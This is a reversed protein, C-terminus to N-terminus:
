KHVIGLCSLPRGCFKVLELGGEEDACKIKLGKCAFIYNYVDLPLKGAPYKTNFVVFGCPLIMWSLDDMVCLCSEFSRFLKFHLKGYCVVQNYDRWGILLGMYASLYKKCNGFLSTETKDTVYSVRRRKM